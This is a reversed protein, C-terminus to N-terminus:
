ETKHMEMLNMGCKPCDGPQDSNIEHHMSCQYFVTGKALMTTDVAHFAPAAKAPETASVANETKESNSTENNCANMMLIPAAALIMILKKM